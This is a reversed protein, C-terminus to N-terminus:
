GSSPLSRVKKSNVEFLREANEFLVEACEEVPINKIEAILEIVETLFV